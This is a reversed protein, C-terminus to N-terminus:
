CTVVQRFVREVEGNLESIYELSANSLKKTKPIDNILEIISDIYEDSNTALKIPCKASDYIGEVSHPHAILVKGYSMAEFSKIKLGTGNFVPNVAIDGMSYFEFLDDVQGVFRINECDSYRNKLVNCISGGIILKISPLVGKLRTMVNTIFWDIGEINYKNAGSLFLINRNGLFPTRKIPFFNYSTYVPKTTLYSYFLEEYKQIALVVDARNLAKAEDNPRLSFWDLGTRQYKNTFVDHTFLVKKSNNFFMFAKSLYVYNVIVVDFKFQKQLKGAKIKIGWPYMDDVKFYGTTRFRLHKFMFELIRHFFNKKYYFFHRGWYEKTENFDNKSYVPNVIWFFFVENGLSKLVEVYSLICARNGAIAPHTPTPSVVLVKKM